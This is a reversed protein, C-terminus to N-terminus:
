KTSSGNFLGHAKDLLASGTTLAEKASARLEDARATAWDPNAIADPEAMADLQANLSNYEKSLRNYDTINGRSGQNAMQVAVSARKFQLDVYSVMKDMGATADLEGAKRFREVAQEFYDKAQGAATGGPTWKDKNLAAVAENMKDSGKRYLDLGATIEAMAASKGSLEQGMADIAQLAKDTEDVGQEYASRAESAGLKGIETRAAALEERATAIKATTEGALKQLAPDGPETDGLADYSNSLAELASVAKLYHGDAASVTAATNVGGAIVGSVVAAVIAAGCCGLLFLVLLVWLWTRKKRPPPVPAPQQAAPPAYAPAPQQAAPPAYAPPAYAPPPPASPATPQPSPADPAAYPGQSDTM